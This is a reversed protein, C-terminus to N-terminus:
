GNALRSLSYGHEKAEAPHSEIYNHHPQCVALFYTADTLLSGVRGKKHHVETAWNKCGKVECIPNEELYWKRLRAYEREQRQRKVSRFRIKQYMMSTGKEKQGEPRRYTESQRDSPGQLRAKRNPQPLDM